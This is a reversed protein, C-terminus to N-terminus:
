TPSIHYTKNGTFHM